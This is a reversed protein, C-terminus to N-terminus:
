VKSIRGSALWVPHKDGEQTLSSIESNSGSCYPAITVGIYCNKGFEEMPSGM